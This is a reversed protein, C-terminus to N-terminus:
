ACNSLGPSSHPRLLCAPVAHPDGSPALIGSSGLYVKRVDDVNRLMTVVVHVGASPLLLVSVVFHGLEGQVGSHKRCTACQADGLVCSM